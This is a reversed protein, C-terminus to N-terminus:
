VAAYLLMAAVKCPATLGAVTISCTDCFCCSVAQILCALMGGTMLMMFSLPRGFKFPLVAATLGPWWCLLGGTLRHRCCVMDRQATYLATGYQATIHHAKRTYTNTAWPLRRRASLVMRSASLRMFARCCCVSSSWFDSVSIICTLSTTQQHMAPYGEQYGQEESSSAKASNVLLRHGSPTTYIATLAPAVGWGQAAPLQCCPMDHDTIRSAAATCPLQWRCGGDDRATNQEQQQAM